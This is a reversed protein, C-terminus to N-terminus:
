ENVVVFELYSVIAASPPDTFLVKVFQTIDMNAVVTGATCTVGNVGSIGNAAYSPGCRTTNRPISAFTTYAAPADTLQSQLTPTTTGNGLLYYSRGSTEASGARVKINGVTGAAQTQTRLGCTLYYGFFAAGVSDDRFSQNAATGVAVTPTLTDVTISVTLPSSTRTFKAGGVNFRIRQAYSSDSWSIVFVVTLLFLIHSARPM